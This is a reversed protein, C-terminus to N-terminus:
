LRGFNLTVFEDWFYRLPTWWRERGICRFYPERLALIQDGIKYRPFIPTSVVLSGMEGPRMEHLMKVGSRTLVEFFFLDYNPVWARNRDRQQGFM